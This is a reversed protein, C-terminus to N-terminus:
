ERAKSILHRSQNSLHLVDFRLWTVVYSDIGLLSLAYFPYRIIEVSSFALLLLPFGRSAQAEPVCHVIACTM